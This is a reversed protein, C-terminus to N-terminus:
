RDPEPFLGAAPLAAYSRHDVRWTKTHNAMFLTFSDEAVADCFLIQLGSWSKAAEDYFANRFIGELREAFSTADGDDVDPPYVVYIGLEYPGDEEGRERLQNDDLDFYLGRINEGRKKSLEAIKGEVKGRVLDEFANPFASRGYRAALWRRFVVLDRNDLQQPLWRAQAQFAAKDVVARRQISITVLQEAGNDGRATAQLVRVNKGFALNGDPKGELDVVLYEVQPELGNDACLDCDHSAIAGVLDDQGEAAPMVFLAGQRWATNRNEDPM